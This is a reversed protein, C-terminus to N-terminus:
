PRTRRSHPLLSASSQLSTFFRESLRHFRGNREREPRTLLLACMMPTTALSVALSVMIAVSLTVLSARITTSRDSAPTIDIAPSISAQLEPLLGM